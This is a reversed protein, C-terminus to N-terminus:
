LSCIGQVKFNLDAALNSWEPCLPRYADETIWRSLTKVSEPNVNVYKPEKSVQGAMRCNRQTPDSPNRGASYVDELFFRAACGSLTVPNELAETQNDNTVSFPKEFTVKSPMMWHTDLGGSRYVTPMSLYHLKIPLKDTGCSPGGEIGMPQAPLLSCFLENILESALKEKSGLGAGIGRDQSYTLGGGSAEAVVIHIPPWQVEAIDSDDVHAVVASRLAYLLSILGRNDTAGGDTVWYRVGKPRESTYVDIAANSFVPPFNASMAAARTLPIEKADLVAQFLHEDPAAKPADTPFVDVALNTLLLRGGLPEGSRLAQSCKAEREPLSPYQQNCVERLNQWPPGTDTEDQRWNGWPFAGTMATNFIVGLNKVSGLQNQEDSLGFRREFSESLLHGTRFGLKIADDTQSDSVHHSLPSSRTNSYIRWEGLGELTDQVFSAGLVDAFQNYREEDYPGRLEPHGAYYAMTASSGSVGSLLNINCSHGGEALGRLVAAANLAARTGGGSGAVLIRPTDLSRQNGCADTDGFILQEPRLGNSTPNDLVLEPAQPAKSAGYTTWGAVGVLVVLPVSRYFRILNRIRHVRHANDSAPEDLPNLVADVLGFGDYFHFGAKNEIQGKAADTEGETDPKGEKIHTVEPLIKGVVAFRNSGHVQLLRDEQAIRVPNGKAKVGAKLEYDVRSLPGDKARSGFMQVLEESLFRSSWYDYFWLVLYLSLIYYVITWNVSPLALSLWTSAFSNAEPAVGLLTSM